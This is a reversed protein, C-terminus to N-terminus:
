NHRMQQCRIPGGSFDMSYRGYIEFTQPDQRIELERGPAGPAGTAGDKGAPGPPGVISKGEKGAEGKPGAISPGGPVTVTTEPIAALIAKVMSAEKMASVDGGQSTEIMQRVREESPRTYILYLVVANLVIIALIILAMLIYVKKM